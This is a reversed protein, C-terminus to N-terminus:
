RCKFVRGQSGRNLTFTGVTESKDTLIVTLTMTDGSIRGTYRAPRGGSEEEDRRVPGAHQAAHKGKVDFRGESDLVISQEITGHACDYEIEAGRETVQLRIHQGGWVGVPITSNNEPMNTAKSARCSNSQGLFIFLLPFVLSVAFMKLSHMLIMKGPKAFLLASGSETTFRSQLQYSRASIAM